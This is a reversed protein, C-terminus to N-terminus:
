KRGKPACYEWLYMAEKHDLCRIMTPNIIFVKRPDHFHYVHESGEMPIDKKLTRILDVKKLESLRRSLVEKETKSMEETCSYRSINNSEERNYKLNNFVSFAGKSVQDLLDFIDEQM